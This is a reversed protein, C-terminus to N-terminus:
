IFRDGKAFDRAPREGEAGVDSIWIARDKASVLFSRKNGKKRVSLIEGADGAARRSGGIKASWVFYKVGKSYTFAGPYPHTLARIWNYVDIAPANWNIRGDEPRRKPWFKHNGSVNKIRRARGAEIEPLHRSILRCVASAAKDYVTACTDELSIPFSMQAIIDGTDAQPDCYFMTVGTRKEGNIIAWNVPARGRYKPLLSSHFGIAGKGPVKLIEACVLRQWGCIVILGPGIKKIRSINVPDNLDRVRYLPIGHRRAVASFDAFGSTRGAYKRSLTFIAAVDGGDKIVQRLCKMGIEVCGIFVIRM